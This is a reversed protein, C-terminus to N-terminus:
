IYKPHTFYNCNLINLMEMDDDDLDITEVFNKVIHEIKSSRPIITFNQKNCWSLMVSSPCTNYKKSIKLLNDDQFKEGKALPTHAVIEISSKRCYEVLDKRYCFPNLEIQNIQPIINNKRFLELHDINFNSVGIMGIYGQNAFQQLTLYSKLEKEMNPNYIQKKKDQVVFSHLIVSNIRSVNLKKMSELISKETTGDVIAKMPIKTNIFLESSDIKNETLVKGIHSENNYLSATDIHRYGTQLVPILCKSIDKEDLRYTGFGIKPMM